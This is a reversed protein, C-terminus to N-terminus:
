FGKIIGDKVMDPTLVAFKTDFYTVPPVGNKEMFLSIVCWRGLSNPQTAASLDLWGDRMLEQLQPLDDIGVFKVDGPKKGAEKLAQGIGPGTAADCCGFGALDPHASLIAAAERAANEIDDYDFATAVLQVNPYKAFVDNLARFREAHPQNTPVGHIIAVKGRYNIRKMLEEGQFYGQEYFDNGTYPIGSETPAVNVYLIVPIGRRKAEQFLPMQAEVDISDIAIGDPQTAIAREILESQLVLDATAPAQYDITIKTGTMAGLHDAMEVSANYVIDFWAQALIPIMVFRYEKQVTSGEGSAGAGASSSSNGCSGISLVLLVVLVVSFVRKM